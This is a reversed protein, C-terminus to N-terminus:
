QATGGLTPLLECISCSKVKRGLKRTAGGSFWGRGQRASKLPRNKRYHLDRWWIGEGQDASKVVVTAGEGQMESSQVVM